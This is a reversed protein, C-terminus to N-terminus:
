IILPFVTAFTQSHVSIELVNVVINPVKCRSGPRTLSWVVHALVAVDMNLVRYNDTLFSHLSTYIM